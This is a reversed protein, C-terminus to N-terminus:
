VYMRGEKNAVKYKLVIDDNQKKDDKDAFFWLEIRDTERLPKEAAFVELAQRFTILDSAKLEMKLEYDYHMVRFCPLHSYNYLIDDYHNSVEWRRDVEALVKDRGPMWKEKFINASQAYDFETTDGSDCWELDHLLTKLDRIMENLDNDKMHGEYQDLKYYGYDYYGGSM